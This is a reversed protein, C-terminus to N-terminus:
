YKIAWTGDPKETITFAFEKPKGLNDDVFKGAFSKGDESLLYNNAENPPNGEVDTVSSVGDLYVSSIVKKFFLEM